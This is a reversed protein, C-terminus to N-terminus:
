LKSIRTVEEDLAEVLKEKLVPKVLYGHLKPYDKFRDLDAQSNSSSCLYITILEKKFENATFKDMFQWGNLYPMDLDLFVLDPTKAENNKNELFYDIAEEGDYVSHIVLQRLSPRLLVM